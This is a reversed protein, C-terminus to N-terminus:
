RTMGKSILKILEEDDYILHSTMPNLGLSDIENHIKDLLDFLEM